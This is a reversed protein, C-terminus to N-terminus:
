ARPFPRPAISKRERRRRRGLGAGCPTTDSYDHTVQDFVVLHAWRFLPRVPASVAPVANDDALRQAAREAFAVQLVGERGDHVPRQRVRAVPELGHVPPQEVGHPLQLKVGIRAELLRRAHDAVHDALEVGVAVLRDIVRQHAQRLIERDAIRQDVPLAIEAIHVAIVGGGHAVGFAAQGIHRLRQQLPQAFVGDVELGGIVALLLLGLDQRRGKRVQQGVARRADRDAHRGVDRRVVHILQADRQQVQDLM